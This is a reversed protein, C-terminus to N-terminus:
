AVDGHSGVALVYQCVRVLSRTSTAGNDVIESVRYCQIVYIEHVDRAGRYCVDVAVVYRCVLV